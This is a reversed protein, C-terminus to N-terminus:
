APQQIRAVAVKAPRLVQEGFWYGRQFVQAVHGDPIEGAPVTLVGDHLNPDFPRGEAEMEVVGFRRLIEVMRARILRIGAVLPDDASQGTEEAAALARDVDDLVAVLDLLVEARGRGSSEEIERRARRRYNEHEALARLWRDRNEAAEARAAELETTAEGAADVKSATEEDVPPGGVGKGEPLAPEEAEPPPNPRGRQKDTM